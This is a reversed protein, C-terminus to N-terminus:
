EYQIASEVRYAALRQRGGLPLLEVLFSLGAIRGGLRGVLQCSAAMTGGTALVDDVLLVRQQPRIADQHVEVADTGYELSYEQRVTAAPLKGPKRILVLGCGRALAMPAALIFGRSEIGAVLDFPAGAFPALMQDVAAKLGEPEKLLTTIDRFLIGPRPFDPIPRILTKLDAM